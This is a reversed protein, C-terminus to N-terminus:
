FSVIWSLDVTNADFDPRLDSRAASYGYGASISHHRLLQYAIRANLMYITDIGGFPTQGSVPTQAAQDALYKGRTMAGAIYFNLRSTIDYSVGASSSLREQSAYPEIQAEWLSYGASAFMRLRPTAMYTVSLNGYPSNQPNISSLAFGRYQWGGSLSGVLRPSFIEEIGVGASTTGSSREYQGSLQNYAVSDYNLTGFVSTAKSLEQRLTLGGSYIKYDNNSATAANDYSLIYYRGSLDLRTTQRLQIGVVGSATNEIFTNNPLLLNNNRDMQEPQDSYRLTDALAFSLRSSLTQNWNFDLAHNLTEQRITSVENLYWVFQPAYRLSIYTNERNYNARIEPTDSLSSVATKNTNIQYFNDNFHYSLTNNLQITNNDGLGWCTTAGIVALVPIVLIKKM